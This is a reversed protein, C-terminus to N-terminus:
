KTETLSTFSKKQQRDFKRLTGDSRWCWAESRSGNAAIEEHEVGKLHQLLARHELVMHEM